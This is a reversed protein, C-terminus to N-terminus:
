YIGLSSRGQRIRQKVLEAEGTFDVFWQEDCSVSPVRYYQGSISGEPYSQTAPDNLQHYMIRLEVRKSPQQPLAFEPYNRTEPVITTMLNNFSLSLGDPHFHHAMDVAAMYEPNTLRRTLTVPNDGAEKPLSVAKTAYGCLRQLRKRVEERDNETIRAKQNGAM